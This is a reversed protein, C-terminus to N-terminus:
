HGKLNTDVEYGMLNTRASDSFIDGETEIDAIGDHIERLLYNNREIVDIEGSEKRDLKWRDGVHVGSDPFIRFIENINKNIMQEGVIKDMQQRAIGKVRDDSFNLTSLFSSAIEKYGRVSRMQGKPDINASILSNKLIGLMKETPDESNAANEADLNTEGNENKSYIHIKSFKMRVDYNGLSDKDLTYNIGVNTKSINDVKKDGLEVKFESENAINYVYSTGAVPSLHLQYVRRPNGEDYRRDSSPQIRCSAVFFLFFIVCGIKNM